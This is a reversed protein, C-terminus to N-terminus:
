GPDQRQGNRRAKPGKVGELRMYKGSQYGGGTQYGRRWTERLTGKALTDRRCDRPTTFISTNKSIRGRSCRNANPVGKMDQDFRRHHREKMVLLGRWTRHSSTEVEILAAAMRGALEQFKEHVQQRRLRREALYMM